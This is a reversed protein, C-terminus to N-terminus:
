WSKGEDGAIEDIFPDLPDVGALVSAHELLCLPFLCTSEKSVTSVLAAKYTWVSISGGTLAIALYPYERKTALNTAMTRIAGAGSISNVSWGEKANLRSVFVCPGKSSSGAIFLLGDGIELSSCDYAHEGGSPPTAICELFASTPFGGSSWRWVAVVRIIDQSALVLLDVIATVLVRTEGQSVQLGAAVHRVVDISSVASDYKRAVENQLELSLVPVCAVQVCRRPDVERLHVGDKSSDCFIINGNLPNIVPSGQFKKSLVSRQVLSLEEPSITPVDTLPSTDFVPKNQEGFVPESAFAFSPEEEFAPMSPFGSSTDIQEASPFNGGDFFTSHFDPSFADSSFVTGFSQTNTVTPFVTSGFDDGAPFAPFLAGDIGNEDSDVKKGPGKLSSGTHNEESYPKPHDRSDGSDDSAFDLSRRRGRRRGEEKRKVGTLGDSTVRRVGREPLGEVSEEDTSDGGM